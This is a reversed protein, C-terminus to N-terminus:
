FYIQIFLPCLFKFLLLAFRMLFFLPNKAEVIRNCNMAGNQIAKTCYYIVHGLFNKYWKLQREQDTQAYFITSYLQGIKQAPCLLIHLGRSLNDMVGNLSLSLSTSCAFGNLLPALRM